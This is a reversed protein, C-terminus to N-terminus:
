RDNWKREQNTIILYVKYMYEATWENRHKDSNGYAKSVIKIFDKYKLDHRILHKYNDYMLVDELYMWGYGHENTHFSRM